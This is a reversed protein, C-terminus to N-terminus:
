SCRTTQNNKRKLKKSWQKVMFSFKSNLYCSLNKFFFVISVAEAISLWRNVSLYLSDNELGKAPAYDVHWSMIKDSKFSHDCKIEEVKPEALIDYDEHEEDEEEGKDESKEMQIRENSKILDSIKHSVSTATYGTPLTFPLGVLKRGRFSALYEERVGKQENNVDVIFRSSVSSPGDYDIICPLHHIYESVNELRGEVM